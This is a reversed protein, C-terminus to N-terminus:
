EKDADFESNTVILLLITKGVHNRKSKPMSPFSHIYFSYILSQQQYVLICHIQNVFILSSSNSLQPHNRSFLSNECALSHSLLLTDRSLFLNCIM